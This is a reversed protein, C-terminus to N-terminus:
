RAGRASALRRVDAVLEHAPTSHPYVRRVRSHGDLLYWMSSHEVSGRVQRMGVGYDEAAREIQQPSGTLGVIRPDIRRVFERMQEPGDNLPDLTVFVVKASAAPGLTHLVSRAEALAIPCTSGCHTFGFFLLVPAGALRSLAFTAGHQDVLNLEGGVEAPPVRGHQLEQAGAHLVSWALGLACATRAFWHCFSKLARM